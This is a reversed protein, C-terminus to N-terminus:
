LLEFRNGKIWDEVEQKHLIKYFEFLKSNLTETSKDRDSHGLWFAATRESGRHIDSGAILIHAVRFALDEYGWGTFREDWGNLLKFLKPTIICVGGMQARTWKIKYETNGDIGHKIFKSVEDEDIGGLHDFPLSCLDNEFSYKCADLLTDKNVYIDADSVVIVDCGDAIAMDCGINRSGSINWREGKKDAFYIKADPLIKKYHAVVFKKPEMRSPQPRWPIVIGIKM